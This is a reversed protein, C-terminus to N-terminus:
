EESSVDLAMKVRWQQRCRLESLTGSLSLSLDEGARAISPQQILELLKHERISAVTSMIEDIREAPWQFQNDILMLDMLIAKM